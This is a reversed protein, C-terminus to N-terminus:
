SAAPSAAADVVLYQWVLRHKRPAAQTDTVWPALLFLFCQSQGGGKFIAVTLRSVVEVARCLRAEVSFGPRSSM